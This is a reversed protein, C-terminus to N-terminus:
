TDQDRYGPMSRHRGRGPRQVVGLGRDAVMQGPQFGLGTGPEGLSRSPADLQGVGAVEEGPPRLLDQASQIGGLPLQGGVDTLPLFTDSQRSEGGRQRGDNRGRQGAQGGPVRPDVQQQRLSLRRLRHPHEPGPLYVDCQDDPVHLVPRRDARGGSRLTGPGPQDEVLLNVQHGPRLGATSLGAGLGAADLATGLGAAGLTTGLRATGLTTGLRATGLTTDLRAAGLPGTGLACAGLSTTGLSTTGLSTTGLSTTGLSTTGLSTTGLSTTGLSTTGLPGAAGLWATGLRGDARGVLGVQGGVCVAGPYRAALVAAAMQDPEALMGPEARLDGDGGVVMDGRLCHDRCPEADGDQGAQRDVRGAM